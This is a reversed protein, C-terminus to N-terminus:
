PHFPGLSGPHARKGGVGGGRSPGSVASRRIALAVAEAVVSFCLLVALLFRVRGMAGGSALLYYLRTAVTAAGAQRAPWGFAHLAVGATLYWVATEGAARGVVYLLVELQRLRLRDQILRETISPPLALARCTEWFEEPLSRLIQESLLFGYPLTFCGLTVAGSVVGLGLWSALLDLAALGVVAGPLSATVRALAPLCRHVGDVSLQNALAAPWAIGLWAAVATTVAELTVIVPQWEPQWPPLASLVAAGLLAGLVIVVFRSM